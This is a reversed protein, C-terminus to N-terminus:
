VSRWAKRRVILGVNDESTAFRQALERYSAGEAYLRRIEVVQDVKLRSTKVAEGVPRNARGDLRGKQSADAMNDAQTGLRLHEPNTCPPNDCAHMVIIGDPIPGRHIEWSVRHAKRGALQAYGKSLAGRWAWCGAGRVVFREYRQVIPAQTNPGADTAGWKKRRSIHMWCM